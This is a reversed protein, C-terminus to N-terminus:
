VQSCLRPGETRLYDRTVEFMKHSKLDAFKDEAQSTTKAESSGGSTQDPSSSVM